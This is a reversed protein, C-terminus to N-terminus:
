HVGNTTAMGGLLTKVATLDTADNVDPTKAIALLIHDMTDPLPTKNGGCKIECEEYKSADGRAITTGDDMKADVTNKFMEKTNKGHTAKKM